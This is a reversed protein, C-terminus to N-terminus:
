LTFDAANHMIKLRQEPNQLIVMWCCRWPGASGRPLNTIIQLRGEDKLDQLWRARTKTASFVWTCPAHVFLVPCFRAMLPVALDMMMFLPSCIVFQPKWFRMWNEWHGPQLADKHCNARTGPDIDNTLVRVHKTDEHEKFAHKIASDGSWADFGKHLTGWKVHPILAEIEASSTRHRLNQGAFKSDDPAATLRAAKTKNTLTGKAWDSGPMLIQLMHAWAYTQSTDWFAPMEPPIGIAQRSTAHSSQRSTVDSDHFLLDGTTTHCTTLVLYETSDEEDFQTSSTGPDDALASATHQVTNHIHLM